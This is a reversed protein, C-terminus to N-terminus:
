KSILTMDVTGLVFIFLYFLIFYSTWVDVGTNRLNLTRPPYKWNLILDFSNLHPSQNWDTSMLLPRRAKQKNIHDMLTQIDNLKVTQLSDQRNKADDIWKQLLSRSKQYHSLQKEQKELDWVRLIFACPPDASIKFPKVLLTSQLTLFICPHRLFQVHVHNDWRSDIQTQIRRWRDSMQGVLDSYKSLDVDCKHFSESIEGNWQVAKALDSEMATLLNRKQELDIKM